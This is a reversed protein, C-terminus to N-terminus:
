KNEKSSKEMQRIYERPVMGFEKKFCRGFYKPDNFGVAYAAQAISYRENIMLKAGHKLKCVRIFDHMTVDLLGKMKNYLWTRSVGLTNCFYEINLNTNDINEEIIERVKSLFQHDQPSIEDGFDQIGTWVDERYKQILQMRTNLINQVKFLLQDVNFPKVIYDNAGAKLGEIQDNEADKATLLIIPIHSTDINSKLTKCLELGNMVPMMVDSIILQPSEKSIQELAEKGNSATLIRYNVKLRSEIFNRLDENDEVVLVCVKLLDDVKDATNSHDLHIEAKVGDYNPSVYNSDITSEKQRLPIWVKFESGSTKSYEESFTSEVEMKGGILEVLQYVLELGIGAGSEQYESPLSGRYFRNFIHKLDKEPIGRGNDKVLFHVSSATYSVELSVVGGNQTYKIANNILNYCIKNLINHDYIARITEAPMKSDFNINKQQALHRFSDGISKFQDSICSEKMVPKVVGGDIKSLEMIQEVLNLLLNANRTIINLLKLDEVSRKGSKMLEQAPGQILSLPTRFEHSVNTYFDTKLQDLQVLQESQTKIREYSHANDLAISVYSALNSLINEDRSDYANYESELAVLVGKVVDGVGILPLYIGSKNASPLFYKDDPDVLLTRCSDPLDNSVVKQNHKTVFVSLRNNCDMSVDDYTVLEHDSNVGWIELTNSEENITGIMLEKIDMLESITQFIQVFVHNLEVSSTIKQGMDSLLRINRQQNQLELNQNLVQMKQSELEENLIHLKETREKVMNELLSRQIRLRRINWISLGITSFIFFALLIGRFWISEWWPPLVIIDIKRIHSSWSGDIDSAQIELVYNGSPLWGYTASHDGANCYSWSEELSNLRYRFRNKVPMRFDLTSFFLTFNNLGFPLEIRDTYTISKSLIQNSQIGVGAKIEQQNVSISTLTLEPNHSSMEIKEPHFKTFGDTGGFYLYGEKDKFAAGENFENGQIGDEMLFNSFRDEEGLDLRSLGMNTSIWIKNQDDELISHITNSPLGDRQFYTKIEYTKPNIRNLGFRTGVWVLGNKAQYISRVENHSLGDSGEEHKLYQVSKNLPDYIILGSNNTGIWIRGQFDEGLCFVPIEFNANDPFLEKLSKFDTTGYKQFVVGGSVTAFYTTSDSAVLIERLSWEKFAIKSGNSSISFDDFTHKNLDYQLIKGEFYGVWVKNPKGVVEAIAGSISWEFEDPKNGRYHKREVKMDKDLVILATKSGILTKGSNTVHIAYIEDEDKTQASIQSESFTEFVKSSGNYKIVGDKSTGIWVVGMRDLYLQHISNSSFGHLRRDEQDFEIMKEDSVSYKLLGYSNSIGAAWIDGQEDEILNSIVNRDNKDVFFGKYDSADAEIRFVGNDMGAWIHGSKAILLSYINNARELYPSKTQNFLTKVSEINQSEDLKCRMLGSRRGGVWLVNDDGKLMCKIYNDSLLDGMRYHKVANTKTNLRTLGETTGVWLFGQASDLFLCTIDSETLGGELESGKYYRTSKLSVPDVKNLGNDTALWISGDSSQLIAGAMSHNGTVNLHDSSLSSNDESNHLLTLFKEQLPDYVSVGGSSFRCWLRGSHDIFLFTIWSDYISQKDNPDPRFVKFQYGDYRCLGDQTGFWIFGAKDQVISTVNSHPLGEARDIAVFRHNQASLGASIVLTFVLYTTIYILSINIRM